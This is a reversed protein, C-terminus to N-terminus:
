QCYEALFADVLVRAFMDYGRRRMHVLDGAGYYLLSTDNAVPNPAISGRSFCFDPDMQHSVQIFKAWASREACVARYVEGFARTSSDFAEVASYWREVSGTNQKLIIPPPAWLSPVWVKADPYEEHIKDMLAAMAGGSVGPETNNGWDNWGLAIIVLLNAGGSVVGSALDTSEWDNNDIYYEMSFQYNNTPGWPTMGPNWFANTKGSGDVDKLLYDSPHWGGRGEHKVAATGRTGRVHINTLALAARLDAAVVPGWESGAQTAVDLARVGVGTLQHSFENVWTGDGDIVEPDSALQSTTSDGICVINIPSSPSSITAPDSLRLALEGLEIRSTGVTARCKVTLGSTIHGSGNKLIRVKEDGQFANFDGDGTTFAIPVGRDPVIGRGFLYVPEGVRGFAEEPMLSIVSNATQSREEAAQAARASELKYPNKTIDFTARIFSVGAPITFRYNEFDAGTSAALIATTFAKNEDYGAIQPAGGSSTVDQASYYFVQDEVCPVFTSTRWNASTPQTIGGLATLRGPIITDLRFYDVIAGHALMDHARDADPFSGGIFVAKYDAARQTVRIFRADPYLSGIRTSQGIARPNYFGLFASSEDFFTIQAVSPVSNAILTGMVAVYSDAVVPLMGTTRYSSSNSEVGTSKNVIVERLTGAGDNPVGYFSFLANRIFALLEPEYTYCEIATSEATFRVYRTEAPADVSITFFTETGAGSYDYGLFAREADYYAVPARTGETVATGLRSIMTTPTVEIFDTAFRDTATVPLGDSTNIATNTAATDIHNVMKGSLIELMRAAREVSYKSQIAIPSTAAALNEVDELRSIYPAGPFDVPLDDLMLKLFRMWSPVTTSGDSLTITTADDGNAMRDFRDENEQFRPIAQDLPLIAM